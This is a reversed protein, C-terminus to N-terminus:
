KVISLLSTAFDMRMWYTPLVPPNHVLAPPVRRRNRAQHDPTHIRSSTQFVAVNQLIPCLAWM